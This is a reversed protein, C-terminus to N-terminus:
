FAIAGCVKRGVETCFWIPMLGIADLALAGLMDPRNLSNLPETMGLTDVPEEGSLASVAIFSLNM